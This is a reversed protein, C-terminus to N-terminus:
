LSVLRCENKDILHLYTDPLISGYDRNLPAHTSNVHWAELPRQHYLCTPPLLKVIIIGGFNYPHDPLCPGNFSFKKRCHFVAKQQEELHM